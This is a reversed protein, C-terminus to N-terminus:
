CSRYGSSKLPWQTVVVNLLTCKGEECGQRFTLFCFFYNYVVKSMHPYIFSEALWFAPWDMSSITLMFKPDKLALIGCSM